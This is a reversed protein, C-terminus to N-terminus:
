AEPASNVEGFAETVARVLGDATCAAPLAEDLMACTLEVQIGASGLHTEHRRIMPYVEYLGGNAGVWSVRPSVLFTDPPWVARMAEYIEELHPDSRWDRVEIEPEPPKQAEVKGIEYGVEIAHEFMKKVGDYISM